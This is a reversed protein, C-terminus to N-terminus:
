FIINLFVFFIYQELRLRAHMISKYDSPINWESGKILMNLSNFSDVDPTIKLINFTEIVALIWTNYLPNQM